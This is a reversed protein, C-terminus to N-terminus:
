WRSRDASLRRYMRECFPGSTGSADSAVSLELAPGRVTFWAPCSGATVIDNSRRSPTAM